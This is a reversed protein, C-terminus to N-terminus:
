VILTEFAVLTNDSILRDKFFASQHEIIISPLIKKLKNALVKSFINYLVNCLSISQYEQVYEPNSIKPILNIFTHNIPHPITVLNLWSLVFTTVDQDVVRWYHQYFLPPMGNPGPEKLPAMQKSALSIEAKLFDGMLVQNMEEFILHPIHELHTTYSATTSTSFLNEYYRLITSAIRNPHDQWVDLEDRVGGIRNKRYRRTAHSHFFGTNNEGNKLWLVCSRQRWLREEQEMLINIEERLARVQHNLSIYKAASEAQTLLARKKELERRVNWFINETGGHLNRVM